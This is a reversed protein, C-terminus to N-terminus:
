FRGSFALGQVGAVLVPDVRVSAGGGLDLENPAAATQSENSSSSGKSAGIILMLLGAGQVVSLNFLLAFAEGEVDDSSAGYVIPGAVPLLLLFADPNDVSAVTAAFVTLGYSISFVITGAVLLGRGPKRPRAYTYAPVPTSVIPQQPQQVVPAAGSTVNYDMSAIDSKRVRVLGTSTNITFFEADEGVRTGIVVTGGTLIFRMPREPAAVAPPPPPPPQPQAIPPAAVAPPPPQQPQAGALGPATVAFVFVPLAALSTGFLWRRTM